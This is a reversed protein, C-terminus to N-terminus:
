KKCSNGFSRKRSELTHWHDTFYVMEIYRAIWLVENSIEKTLGVFKLCAIGIHLIRGPVYRRGM